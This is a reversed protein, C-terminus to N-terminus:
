RDLGRYHDRPSVGREAVFCRYFQTYSGFGAALAAGLLNAGDAVARDAVKLRVRRRYHGLSMGTGARFVRALHSLSTGSKAAVWALSAGPDDEIVAAARDVAPHVAARAADPARGTEDWARMAWWRLGAAQWDADDRDRIRDALADLAEHEVRALRVVRQQGAGQPDPLYPGSLLVRSLVFVWMDFDRSESLLLHAQGSFAWLLTGEAVEVIQGDILYRMRGRLGLLVVLEHHSRPADDYRRRESRRWCRGAVGAALFRGPEM